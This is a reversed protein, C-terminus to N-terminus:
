KHPFFFVNNPKLYAYFFDLWSTQNTTCCYVADTSATDVCVHIETNNVSFEQCATWIRQSRGTRCLETQSQDTRMICNHVMHSSCLHSSRSTMKPWGGREAQWRWGFEHWVPGVCTAREPGNRHGNTHEPHNKVRRWYFRTDQSSLCILYFIIWFFFRRFTQAIKKKKKKQFDWIWSQM